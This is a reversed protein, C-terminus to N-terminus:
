RQPERVLDLFPKLDVEYRALMASHWQKVELPDVTRKALSAEIAAGIKSWDGVLPEPRADVRVLLWAGGDCVPGGVAGIPTTFALKGLPTDGKVIPTIWGDDRSSPDKSRKRAVEEFAVGDSLDKQAAKVDEESNVVIVHIEAHEQQLLWARAVREGLCARLADDRLKERYRIPDLGLVRDVYKDLTLNPTKRGLDSKKIEAEMAEVANDYAKSATDPAITVRLRQAEVMVLRGMALNRLQDLVRFSDLYLWQSLLESVYVPEGAVMAVIPESKTDGTTTASANSASANSPAAAGGKPAEGAVAGTTKPSEGGKTADTAVPPRWPAPDKPVKPNPAAACAVCLAAPLALRLPALRALSLVNSRRRTQM